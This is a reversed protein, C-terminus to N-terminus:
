GACVGGIVDRGSRAIKVLVRDAGLNCWGLRVLLRSVWGQPICSIDLIRIGEERCLAVFDRLTCLHINPTDFWRYPLAGGVPMRGSLWLRMRHSIKGFNPFTVVGERAVRLMERLVDRPRQLVQLTQSLVAYDYAGDPIMALGGDIDQQVIDYGRDLVGIVQEIDTDVGLGAAARGGALLALLDGSGCGLDVVRAGPAITRLVAAREAEDVAARVREARAVGRRAPKHLAPTRADASGGSAVWPLFARIVERLHEVDVLFADHGQPAELVCYSVARGARLLADAIERSQRVPFLWDTSLGVALFRARICECAAQLSGYQEVLDFEDMARTIHLYSNADFRRIFKAGQYELYGEVQFDTQFEHRVSSAHDAAVDPRRERGFKREMMGHSLYTIHGIKRAQALGRVPARGTGYYDGGQWDPDATIVDRGVADFALAQASLSGASAICICRGVMEPYRIAWDLVQMGGFSGGVLAAVHEIGLERLLLRHVDVIDRVALRPFASGYPAGTRPDTSSPGTTGKCGGLINACVVHYYRTDIGKGPGIMEDWWGIADPADARTGAAHADGTLAHCIFVVNDRQPSLAGYTEFAVNVEPLVGGHAMVFGGPPLKLTVCRTEVMGVGAPPTDTFTKM